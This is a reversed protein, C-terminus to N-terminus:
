RVAYMKLGEPIEKRNRKNLTRKDMKKHSLFKKKKLNKYIVSLSSLMKKDKILSVNPWWKVDCSFRIIQKMNM